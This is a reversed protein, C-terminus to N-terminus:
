TTPAINEATGDSTRVIKRRVRCPNGVAVCDEPIDHTVVSGAGIITNNGITVGPLICVHGGIWVNDGIAIPSAYEYGAARVAPDEAHGATYIGVNPGIFVNNGITVRACDIIVLNVNAWFRDGVFINNGFDCHFPPIITCERGIGGFLRELIGNRAQVDTLSTANFRRVAEAARAYEEMLTDDDFSRYLLGAARRKRVDM